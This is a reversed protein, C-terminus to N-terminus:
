GIELAIDRNRYRRRRISFTLLVANMALGMIVFTTRLGITDALVGLPLAAIGFGSFGLMVLSQIRGHYEFHSLGLLLSQLTTQFSLSSGGVLILLGLAVPFTPALGLLIIGTGFGFGSVTVVLWPDARAGRRVNFLGAMVAGAAGVASMLGYGGSGADFIGDAVTPLFGMYPYGLMVVALSTGVLLALGPETRVYDVGDRLDGMPSRTPRDQRPAAKPLTLGIITGAACLVACGQFVGALGWTAAGIVLGAASPGIVRMAEASMQGLVIANPRDEDDVLESIYAMRGPGYLAFAVAQLASAAILMWYAVFDFQVAFGIWGSSITLLLQAVFIVTRKPLRDAAVGGFPTAILMALGFGLLVGGLGANTGTLELALWGRAIAQATVALFVVLGSIWLRRYSPYRLSSFTTTAAPTGRRVQNVAM